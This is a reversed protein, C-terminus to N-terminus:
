EKCQHRAEGSWWGSRQQELARDLALLYSSCCSSWISCCRFPSHRSFSLRGPRERFRHRKPQEPFVPLVAHTHRAVPLAVDVVLVQKQMANDVLGLRLAHRAAVALGRHHVGLRECRVRLCSGHCMSLLSPCGPSSPRPLSLTGLFGVLCGCRSGFRSRIIILIVVIISSIIIVISIIVSSSQYIIHRPTAPPPHIPSPPPLALLLVCLLM